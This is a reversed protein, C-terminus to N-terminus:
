PLRLGIGLSASTTFRSVHHFVTPIFEYSDRVLTMGTGARASLEVTSGLSATLVAAAGASGFFRASTAQAKTNTGSASLRGMLVSGCARVDVVSLQVRLACADLSAADLTFSATGGTEVLGNRWAHLAGIMMAPSWLDDRDLAAIAYIAVGPMVAPAPGWITQGALYAGGRRRAAVSRAPSSFEVPSPEPPTPKTVLERPSDTPSAAPRAIPAAALPSASSAGISSGASAGVAPAGHAAARHERVWVPDLAVAIILAVADAAEGCSRALMRRPTPKVGPEVLVIEASVGGSRAATFTAEVGVANARDVFQIRPSRAAVRAVLDDRAVCDPAARLELRASAVPPEPAVATVGAEVPLLLALLVATGSTM